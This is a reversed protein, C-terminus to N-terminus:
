VTLIDKEKEETAKEVAATFRDTVQQVEKEQRRVSDKVPHTKAQKMAVQRVKRLSVKCQEAISRVEKTLQKRVEQTPRPVPVRLTKGQTEPRLQLHSSEIAKVVNPVNTADFVSM